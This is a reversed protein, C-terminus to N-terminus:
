KTAIKVTNVSTNYGPIALRYFEDFFWDQKNLTVSVTTKDITFASALTGIYEGTGSRTWVIDGITNELVTATPASTGVQTLLATYIKYGRVPNKLLFNSAGGATKGRHSVRQGTANPNIIVATNYWTLNFQAM